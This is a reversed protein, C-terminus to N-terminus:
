SMLTLAQRLVEDFMENTLKGTFTNQQSVHYSGLLTLQPMLMFKMGHGFAPAPKPILCKKRRALALTADWAIKGLALIVRKRGLMLWERDLFPACNSVEEPLPKNAPPACRATASIYCDRLKLGDDRSISTAQNAFGARHLAAYLFDGSRDGTFVRGTRNGGHAAPALGIIWLRAQSDGYGPVPRGWYDWDLYQRRKTQAVDTCYRRLRDCRQCNEVETHLQNLSSPM